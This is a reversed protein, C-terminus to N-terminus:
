RGAKDDDPLIEFEAAEAKDLTKDFPERPDGVPRQPRRAAPRRTLLRLLGWILLLTLLTRLLSM